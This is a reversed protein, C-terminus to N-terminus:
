GTPPCSGQGKLEINRLYKLVLNLEMQRNEDTQRALAAEVDPIACVDPKWCAARGQQASGGAHPLELRGTPAITQDRAIIGAQLWQRGLWNGAAAFRVLGSRL